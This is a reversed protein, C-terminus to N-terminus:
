GEGKIVTDVARMFEMLQIGAHTHKGRRCHTYIGRRTQARGQKAM